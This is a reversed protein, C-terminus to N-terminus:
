SDAYEEKEKKLMRYMAKDNHKVKYHNLVNQDEYENDRKRFKTKDNKKNKSCSRGGGIM